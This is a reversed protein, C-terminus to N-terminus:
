AHFSRNPIINRITDRIERAHAGQEQMQSNRLELMQSERTAKAQEGQQALEGMRAVYNGSQAFVGSLGQSLANVAMVRSHTWQSPLAKPTIKAAIVGTTDAAGAGASAAASSANRGVDKLATSASKGRKFVDKLSTASMKLMVLGAGIQVAAGVMQLIFAHSQASRAKAIGRLTHDYVTQQSHLASDRYAKQLEKSVDHLRLLAGFPNAEARLALAAPPRAVSAAPLSAPHAAAPPVPPVTLPTLAARPSSVSM